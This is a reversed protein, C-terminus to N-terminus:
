KVGKKALRVAEGDPSDPLGRHHECHNVDRDRNTAPAGCGFADCLIVKDHVPEAM